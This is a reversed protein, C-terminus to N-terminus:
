LDRGYHLVSVLTPCLAFVAKLYSFCVHGISINSKVYVIFPRTIIIIIVLDAAVRLDSLLLGAPRPDVPQILARVRLFVFGHRWRAILRCYLTPNM